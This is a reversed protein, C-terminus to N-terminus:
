KRRTIKSIFIQTIKVKLEAFLILIFCVQALDDVFTNDLSVVKAFTGLNGAFNPDLNAWLSFGFIIGGFIFILLNSIFVLFKITQNGWGYVM